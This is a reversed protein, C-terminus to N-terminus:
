RLVQFLIATMASVIAMPRCGDMDVDQAKM